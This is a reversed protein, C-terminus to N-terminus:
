GNTAGHLFLLINQGQRGKWILWHSFILQIVAIFTLILLSIFPKGYFALLRMLELVWLNSQTMEPTISTKLETPFINFGFQAASCFTRPRGDNAVPAEAQGVGWYRNKIRKLLKTLTISFREM